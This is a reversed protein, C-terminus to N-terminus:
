CHGIKFNKLFNIVNILICVCLTIFNLFIVFAYYKINIYMHMDKIVAIWFCLMISEIIIVVSLSKKYVNAKNFLYGFLIELVNLILVTKVEAFSIHIPVDSTILWYNVYNILIILLFLVTIILKLIFGFVRSM